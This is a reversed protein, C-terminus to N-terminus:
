SSVHTHVMFSSLPSINQFQRNEQLYSQSASDQLAPGSTAYDPTSSLNYETNSTVDLFNARESQQVSTIDLNEVNSNAASTVYENAPPAYENAPPALTVKSEDDHIRFIFPKYSSCSLFQPSSFIFSFSPAYRGDSQDISDDDPVTAVDGHNDLPKATLSADLTGSVFSGFTLHACDANSVQLHDPIIVAPNDDSLKPGEHLTLHDFQTTTTSVDGNLDAM